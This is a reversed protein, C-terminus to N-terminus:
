EAEEGGESVAGGGRIALELIAKEGSIAKPSTGGGCARLGLELEFVKDM